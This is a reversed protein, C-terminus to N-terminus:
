MLNYTDTLVAQSIEAGLMEALSMEARVNWCLVNRSKSMKDGHVNLSPSEAISSKRVLFKQCLSMKAGPYKPVPVKQCLSMPNEAINVKWSSLVLLYVNGAGWQRLTLQLYTRAHQYQFMEACPYKPLISPEACYCMEACTGFHRHWFMWIAKYPASIEWHQFTWTGFNGLTTLDWYWLTGTSFLIWVSIDM